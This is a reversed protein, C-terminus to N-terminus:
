FVCENLLRLYEKYLTIYITDLFHLLYFRFFYNQYQFNSDSLEKLTPLNEQYSLTNHACRNRHKYVVTYYREMLEKEFFSLKNERTNYNCFLNDRIFNTDNLYFVYERKKCQAFVSEAFLISVDSKTNSIISVKNILSNLDYNSNLKQIEKIVDDFIGKKDNYNSCEGLGNRFKEYRYEYDNTAIDWCICKLKQEQAGTMKLFTSQMVYEYLPYVNIEDVLARSANIANSLNNIVPTLIFKSHSTLM